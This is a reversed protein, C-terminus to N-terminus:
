RFAMYSYIVNKETIETIFGNDIGETILAAEGRNAPWYFTRSPTFGLNNVTVAAGTGTFTGQTFPHYGKDSFVQHNNYKLICDLNYGQFNWTATTDTTTTNLDTYNSTVSPSSVRRIYTVASGDALKRAYNRSVLVGNADFVSPHHDHAFSGNLLISNTINVKKALENAVVKNQVPNTSSTSLASDITIKTAGTAIGNLKTVMAATMLGSASTTADSYTTNTDPPVAWTGDDRLFKTATGSRKPCLGNSTTSVVGYTTNQPVTWTGDSCLYTNTAVTSPVPVLGAETANTFYTITNWVGDSRLYRDILGASPAPVLGATGAVSTSAGSMNTITVWEGDCRLYRNSYGMEPAPVLGSLGSSKTTSGEMIGYTTDTYEMRKWSGWTGNACLRRYVESNSFVVTQRTTYETSSIWSLLEVELTFAFIVPTNTDASFPQNAIYGPYKNCIYRQIQPYGSELTINNFDFSADTIEIKSLNADQM